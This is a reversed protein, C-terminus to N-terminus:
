HSGARVFAAGSQQSQGCGPVARGARRQPPRLPHDQRVARPRARHPQGQRTHPNVLDFDGDDKVAQMFADTVGVSINFNAITGEKAKCSIFEEIDPHDVRLVGMNAGRRTNHTVMGSALYTHNGEVELDLTLAEGAPRTEAVHVFWLNDVPRAHQAFEPSADGAVGSLRQHHTPARRAPLAAAEQALRSRSAHWNIGQGRGKRDIQPLTIEDLVPQLWYEPHPLVYSSEREANPRFTYCGVFRSRQDCGIRARWAELGVSSNIRLIHQPRKGLKGAYSTTRLTLPCGLGILLAAVERALQESTTNLQPFGHSLGGDAEFLGRLYAGVVNAPSQRVLRPIQVEYSKAKAFGNDIMFQKVLASDIVFTVSADDTKQQRHM